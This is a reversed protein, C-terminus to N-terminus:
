QSTKPIYVLINNDDFINSRLQYTLDQTHPSFDVLLYGYSKSTAKEFADKFFALKDPFAQSGFISIQKKDRLCRFLIVYHCNLSITRAYKGPPYLNQTIFICSINRHHSDVTFLHLIDKDVTLANMLDDLVLVIHQSADESWYEIDEKTPLGKFLNLNPIKREMETFIPQHISYAYIIKSTSATFMDDAKELLRNIFYTKGCGTGGSVMITCPAIFPLMTYTWSDCTYHIFIRIYDPKLISFICVM